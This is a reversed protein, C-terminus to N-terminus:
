CDRSIQVHTGLTTAAAKWLKGPRCGLRTAHNEQITARDSPNQDDVGPTCYVFIPDQRGRPNSCDFDDLKHIHRRTYEELRKRIYGVEEQILPKYMQQFPM